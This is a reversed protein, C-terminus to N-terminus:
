SAMSDTPKGGAKIHNDFWARKAEATMPEDESDVFASGPELLELYTPSCEACLWGNVDPFTPEDDDIPRACALCKIRDDM